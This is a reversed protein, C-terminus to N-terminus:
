KKIENYRIAKSFLKYFNNDTLNIFKEFPIKYFNSLYEATFKIFSPENTKGRNPEPTLFPSDTEVLIKNLPFNRIINRLNQANKFTVIGSLSIYFDNDLCFKILKYSGTFCHFVVKLPTENNYTNIIDIIQKESNRQHIILPLKTKISCEIHNEFSIIQEKKYQESHFFDLGTEGIGIVKDNNCSEILEHRNVINNENVYSPHLGYSIFISKYNKIMLYHDKFEDPKTNISLIASIKNNKARIIINELDNKLNDFYLHCHSDIM